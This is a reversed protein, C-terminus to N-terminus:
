YGGKFPNTKKLYVRYFLIMFTYAFAIILLASEIFWINHSLSFALICFWLLLSLFGSYTFIMVQAEEAENIHGAMGLDKADRIARLVLIDWAFVIASILFCAFIFINTSIHLVFDGESHMLANIVKEIMILLYTVEGVVVALLFFFAYRLNYEGNSFM